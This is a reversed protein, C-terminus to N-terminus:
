KDEEKAAKKAIYEDFAKQDFSQVFTDFNMKGKLEEPLSEFIVHAKEVVSYADGIDNPLNSIDVDETQKPTRNILSPDVANIKAVADLVSNGQYQVKKLINLIGVDNRFSDIYEQRNYKRTQVYEEKVTVEGDDGIPVAKNIRMYEVIYDDTPDSPKLQIVDNNIKVIKEEKM